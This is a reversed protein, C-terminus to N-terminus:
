AFLIQSIIDKEKLHIFGDAKAMGVLLSLTQKKKENTISRVISNAQIDDISSIYELDSVTIAFDNYTQNMFEEEKPDIIGDAKMICSLIKIIAYQEIKTFSNM